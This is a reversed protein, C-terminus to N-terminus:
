HICIFYIILIWIKAIIHSRHAHRIWKTYHWDHASKHASLVCIEVPFLTVNIIRCHVHSIMQNVEVVSLCIWPPIAGDITAVAAAAAAIKQFSNLIDNVFSHIEIWLPAFSVISHWCRSHILSIVKAPLKDRNLNLKSYFVWLFPSLSNFASKNEGSFQILLSFTLMLAPMPVPVDKSPSSSFMPIKPSKGGNYVWPVTQYLFFWNPLMWKMWKSSSLTFAGFACVCVCVWEIHSAFYKSIYCWISISHQRFSTEGM